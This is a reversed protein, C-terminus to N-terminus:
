WGKTNIRATNNDTKVTSNEAQSGAPFNLLIVGNSAILPVPTVPSLLFLCEGIREIKNPVSPSSAPFASFACLFASRVEVNDRVKDNIPNVIISHKKERVSRLM